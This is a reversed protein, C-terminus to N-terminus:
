SWITSRSVAGLQRGPKTRIPAARDRPSQCLWIHEMAYELMITVDPRIHHEDSKIVNETPDFKRV